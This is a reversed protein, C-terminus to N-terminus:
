NSAVMCAYSRAVMKMRNVVPHDRHLEDMVAKQLKSQVVVRILCDGEVTLEHRRRHFPLLPDTVKEPWADKVCCLVKSLVPNGQTAAQVQKATVPLSELQMVNFVSATDADPGLPTHELPLQSLSDANTTPKFEIDYTYASLLVARRQLRAAALSPIGKM